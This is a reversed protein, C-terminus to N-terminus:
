PTLDCLGTSLGLLIEIKLNTWRCQSGGWGAFGSSYAQAGMNNDIFLSRAAQADTPSTGGPWQGMGFTFGLHSAPYTSVGPPGFLAIQANLNQQWTYNRPPPQSISPLIFDLAAAMQPLNVIDCTDLANPSTIAVGTGDATLVGSISVSDVGVSAVTATTPIGTGRLRQGVGINAVNPMNLITSSGSTMDGTTTVVATSYGCFGARAGSGLLDDTIIAYKYGKQHAAEALQIVLALQQTATRADAMESM